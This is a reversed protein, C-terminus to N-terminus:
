KQLKLKWGTKTHTVWYDVGNISLGNDNIIHVKSSPNTKRIYNYMDSTMEKKSVRSGYNQFKHITNVAIKATRSSNTETGEKLKYSKSKANLERTYRSLATDDRIRETNRVFEEAQQKAQDRNNYLRRLEAKRKAANIKGSGSPYKDWIADEEAYREARLKSSPNFWNANYDDQAQQRYKDYQEYAEKYAKEAKGVKNDPDTNYGKIKRKDNLKGKTRNRIFNGVARAKSEGKMIPIHVGNVTIWKEIDAM